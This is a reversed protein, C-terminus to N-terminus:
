MTFIYKKVKVKVLIFDCQKIEAKLLYDEEIQDKEMEEIENIIDDDDGDDNIIKYYGCDEESSEDIAM